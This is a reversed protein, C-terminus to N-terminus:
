FSNKKLFSFSFKKYFRLATSCLKISNERYFIVTSQFTDIQLSIIRFTDFQVMNEDFNIVMLKIGELFNHIM